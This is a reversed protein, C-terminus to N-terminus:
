VFIGNSKQTRVHNTEHSPSFYEHSVSMNMVSISMSIVSISMNIVSISMNIVLISINIVLISMHIVLISMHIVLISMHIVLISHYKPIDHGRSLYLLCVLEPSSNTAHHSTESQEQLFFNYIPRPPPLFVLRLHVVVVM